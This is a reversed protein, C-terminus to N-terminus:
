KQRKMKMEHRTGVFGVATSWSCGAWTTWLWGGGGGRRRFSGGTGETDGDAWFVAVDDFDVVGVDGLESVSAVVGEFAYSSCFDV